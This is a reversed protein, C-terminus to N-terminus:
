KNPSSIYIKDNERSYTTSTLIAITKMVDDVNESLYIKGSCTKQELLSSKDYSFSLNYYRELQELVERIPTDEFLFYGNKWGVHKNVDTRFKRFSDQGQHIAIEGVSLFTEKKSDRSSLAVKGEVLVVSSPIDSYASVNFETGYVKVSYDPLHVYFSCKKDKAVAAYIEGMLLNIDRTSGSFLAPFELISGSNIWIISNDALGIKTRKGYPVVIRNLSESTAVDSKTGDKETVTVVGDKGIQLDIDSDFTLEKKNSTLVIDKNNLTNGIIMGENALLNENNKNSIHKYLGFSLMLVVCASVAVKVFYRIFQHRKVRAESNRIRELLLKREELTLSKGTLKIKQEFFAEAKKFNDSLDPNNSLFDDWYKNTEKNPFLKWEIFKENKLFDYPTTYYKESM